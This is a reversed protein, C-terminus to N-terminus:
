GLAEQMSQVKDEIRMLSLALEEQSLKIEDVKRELIKTLNTHNKFM